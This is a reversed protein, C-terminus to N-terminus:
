SHVIIDLPQHHYEHKQTLVGFANGEKEYVILFFPHQYSPYGLAPPNIFGEKLAKFASDDQYGWIIPDIKDNKLLVYLPHAM